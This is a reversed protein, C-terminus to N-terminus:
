HIERAHGDSKIKDTAGQINTERVRQRISGKGTMSLKQLLPGVQGVPLVVSGSDSDPTSLQPHTPTPIWRYFRTSCIDLTSTSVLREHTTLSGAEQVIDKVPLMLHESLSEHHIAEKEQKNAAQADGPSYIGTKLRGLSALTRTRPMRFSPTPM